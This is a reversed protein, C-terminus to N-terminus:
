VVLNLMRGPVFIVRKISGTLFKAVGPEAMAAAVAEEQSATKSVSITGRTKGSVQVAM